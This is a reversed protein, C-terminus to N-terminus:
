AQSPRVTVECKTSRDVDSVTKVMVDYPSTDEYYHVGNSHWSTSWPEHFDIHCILVDEGADDKYYLNWKIDSDKYCCSNFPCGAYTVASLVQDTGPVAPNQPTVVSQTCKQSYVKFYIKDSPCETTVDRDVSVTAQLTANSM